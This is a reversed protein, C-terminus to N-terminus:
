FDDDEDDEDDDTCEEFIKFALLNEWLSDEGDNNFDFWSM